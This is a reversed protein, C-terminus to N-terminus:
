SIRHWRIVVKYPQLNNHAGDGGQPPVGKQWHWDGSGTGNGAQGGDNWSGKPTLVYNSYQISQKIVNHDHEPMESIQLVHTEEGGTSGVTAFTGSDRSVTVRGTTDEVWTGGWSVNPDFTTDSTEYYTGVPYFIDLLSTGGWVALYHDDALPSGEGPDVNTLTFTSM